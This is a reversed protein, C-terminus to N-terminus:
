CCNSKMNEEIRNLAVDIWLSAKELTEFGIQKSAMDLNKNRNSFPHHKTKTIFSPVSWEEMLNM